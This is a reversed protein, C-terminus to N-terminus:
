RDRKLKVLEWVAWALVIGFVLLMEILGLYDGM